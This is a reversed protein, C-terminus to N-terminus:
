KVIVVASPALGAAALTQDLEAGSFVKKPYTIALSTVEFGAEQMIAQQVESLKTEAPYTKMMTLGSPLQLKLRAQSAGSPKPQTIPPAAPEDPVIVQGTRAAKEAEAKAKRAAKDAEIKDKIRKKAAIDDEKEQRKKAAAKIQEKKEMEEKLDQLDKTKKRSIEENRKADKKDQVAQLAKREAAKAKLEELKAKKEADTLPAIEDTSEDFNVHGSREAHFEAQRQSRFKKGCDTCVLSKAEEGPQLSPGDDDDDDAKLEEIPKDQNKELWDIAGNVPM